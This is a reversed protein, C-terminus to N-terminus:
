GTDKVMMITVAEIVTAIDCIGIPRGNSTPIGSIVMVVRKMARPMGAAILAVTVMKVLIIM